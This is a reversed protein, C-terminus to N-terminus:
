FQDPSTRCGVSVIIDLSIIKELNEHDNSFITARKNKRKKEKEGLIIRLQMINFEAIIQYLTTCEVIM